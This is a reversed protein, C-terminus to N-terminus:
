IILASRGKGGVYGEVGGGRHDYHRRPPPPTTGGENLVV